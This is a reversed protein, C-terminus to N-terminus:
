ESAGTRRPYCCHRQCQRPLSAECCRSVGSQMMAVSWVRAALCPGHPDPCLDPVHDSKSTSQSAPWSRLASSEGAVAATSSAIGSSFSSELSAGSEVGGPVERHPTIARRTATEPASPTAIVPGTRHVVPNVESWLHQKNIFYSCHGSIFRVTTSLAMQHTFPPNSLNPRSGARFASHM